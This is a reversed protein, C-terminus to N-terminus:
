TDTMDGMNDINLNKALQVAFVEAEKWDVDDFGKIGYEVGDTVLFVDIVDYDWDQKACIYSNPMAKETEYTIAM